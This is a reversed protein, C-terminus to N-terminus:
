INLKLVIQEPLSLHYILVYVLISVYMCDKFTCVLLCVLPDSLAGETAAHANFMNFFTWLFKRKQDCLELHCGITTNRGLMNLMFHYVGHVIICKKPRLLHFWQRLFTVFLLRKLFLTEYMDTPMEQLSTNM